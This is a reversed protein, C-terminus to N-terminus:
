RDNLGPELVSPTMPNQPIRDEHSDSRSVQLAPAHATQIAAELGTVVRIARRPGMPNSAASSMATAGAHIERTM